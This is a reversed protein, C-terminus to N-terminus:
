SSKKKNAAVLGPLGGPGASGGSQTPTASVQTGSANSLYSSLSTPTFAAAEPALNSSPISTAAVQPYLAAARGSYDAAEPAKGEASYDNSLNTLFTQKSRAGQNNVNTRADDAATGARDRRAKDEARFTGIATDLGSQNTAFNDAAGSLDENAGTRVADNALNIGDGNLAGLSSLTGFLGKRGQAAGILASQKNKQLNNQNTDSQGGYNTENAAKETDYGGIIGALSKNVANIGNTTQEDVAGLGANNLAIDNSKDAYVPAAAAAGSTGGTPASIGGSGIGGPDASAQVAAAPANPDNIQKLGTLPSFSGAIPSAALHEATGYNKVGSQGAQKIYINGDAGTWYVGPM